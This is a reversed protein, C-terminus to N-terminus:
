NQQPASPPVVTSTPVPAWWVQCGYVIGGSDLEIKPNNEHCALEGGLEAVLEDSPKEEANRMSKLSGDPCRVFYVTVEGIWTGLGLDQQGDGSYVQVRAIEKRKAMFSKFSKVWSRPKYYLPIGQGGDAKKAM